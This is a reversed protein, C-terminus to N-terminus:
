RKIILYRAEPRTIILFHFASSFSHYSNNSIPYGAIIQSGWALAPKITRYMLPQACKDKDWGTCFGECPLLSHHNYPAVAERRRRMSWGDRAFWIWWLLFQNKKFEVRNVGIRGKSWDIGSTYTQSPPKENLRALNHPFVTAPRTPIAPPPLPPTPPPPLFLCSAGM